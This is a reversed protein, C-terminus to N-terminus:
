LTILLTILGAIVAAGLFLPTAEEMAKAVSRTERINDIMEGINMVFTEIHDWQFLAFIILALTILYTFITM